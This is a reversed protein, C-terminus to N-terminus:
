YKVAQTKDVDTMLYCYGLRFNVDVNSPDAKYLDLYPKIALDYSGFAFLANADQKVTKAQDKSLPKPEQKPRKQKQGLAPLSLIILLAVLPLRHFGDIRFQKHM